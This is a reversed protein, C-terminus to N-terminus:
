LTWIKIRTGIKYGLGANMLQSSLNQYDKQYVIIHLTIPINTGIMVRNSFDRFQEISDTSSINDGVKAEGLQITGYQDKAVLDPAHKGFKPPKLLFEPLDASLITFGLTNRFHNLLARILSQHELSPNLM